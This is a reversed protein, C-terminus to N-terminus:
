FGYTYSLTANLGDGPSHITFTGDDSFDFVYEYYRDFLNNIQLTVLGWKAKYDMGINVLSYSGFRGGLNKENVYYSGQGDIHARATWKEGFDRSVGVSYTYDPVSRLRNGITESAASSPRTIESSAYSYNGWLTTDENLYWNAAFDFGSRNTEGVNVNTGDLNVFEDKAVQEWYSVRTFFTETAQWKTGIEWGDNISVDRAERDGATYLSAGFPHQFSRGFNVFATLDESLAMLVNVKPQVIVGFDFIDRPSRNGSADFSAFDGGLEDFRLGANWRLWESPSQEVSVFGGITDMDYRRDRIVNAADRTRSQGVTGFRQEIVDQYEYDIGTMLTWQENVKYDLTSIFGNMEQDDYRNQLSGAESFRVWRERDFAQFYLKSSLELDGGLWTKDFHLSFHDSSKEGGDQNAFDASSEPDTQAEDISLYGPSDGKYGAFRAIFAISTEEDLDYAWRGSFANKTLDTHDRYGSSDRYGVFYSQRLDGTQASWYGQAEYSGFSDFTLHLEEGIDSRSTVSYNGAINYLGHRVDSTGKFTAISGIAAPFMQDLENYGNHLNSPIGDILLKAHPTVGDGAFGRIAIDTNIVGQNYRSLSVGAVKSFLELTDDPHEYILEGQTVLDYSGALRGYEFEYFKGQDEGIVVMPDLSVVDDDTVSQASSICFPASQAVIALAVLFLNRNM